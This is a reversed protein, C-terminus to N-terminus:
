IVGSTTDPRVNIRARRLSFLSILFIEHVNALEYCFSNRNRQGRRETKPLHKMSIFLYFCCCQQPVNFQLIQPLIKVVLWFFIVGYSFSSSSVVLPVATLLKRKSDSFSKNFSSFDVLFHNQKDCVEKRNHISM